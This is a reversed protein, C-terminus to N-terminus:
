GVIRADGCEDSPVEYMPMSWDFNLCRQAMGPKTIRSLRIRDHCTECCIMCYVEFKGFAEVHAIENLNLGISLDLAQPTEENLDSPSTFDERMIQFGIGGM